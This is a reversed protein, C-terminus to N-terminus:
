WLILLLPQRPGSLVFGPPGAKSADRESNPICRQQPIDM